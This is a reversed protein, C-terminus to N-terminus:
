VLPLARAPPPSSPPNININCTSGPCTSPALVLLRRGRRGERSAGDEAEKTALESLVRPYLLLYCSEGFSFSKRLFKAKKQALVTIIQTPGTPVPTVAQDQSEELAEEGGAEAGEDDATAAPKLESKSLFLFGSWCSCCRWRWSPCLFLSPKEFLLLLSNHGRM